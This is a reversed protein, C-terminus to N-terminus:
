CSYSNIRSDSLRYTTRKVNKVVEVVLMDGEVRTDFEYDGEEGSGNIVGKVYTKDAQSVNVDCFSGKVFVKSVSNAELEVSAIQAQISFIGGILFTIITLYRM